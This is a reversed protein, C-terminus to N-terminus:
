VNSLAVAQQSRIETKKSAGGLFFVNFSDMKFFM